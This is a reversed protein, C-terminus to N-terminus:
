DPQTEFFDDMEKELPANLEQLKNCIQQLVSQDWFGGRDLNPWFYYFGSVDALIDGLHVGNDYHIQYVHDILTIRIM